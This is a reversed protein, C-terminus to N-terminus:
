LWHYGLHVLHVIEPCAIGMKLFKKTMSVNGPLKKTRFEVHKIFYNANVVKVGNDIKVQPQGCTNTMSLRDSIVLKPTGIVTMPHMPASNLQRQLKSIPSIEFIALRQLGATFLASVTPSFNPQVLDVAGINDFDDVVDVNEETGYAAFASLVPDQEFGIDQGLVDGLITKSFIWDSVPSFQSKANVGCSRLDFVLRLGTRPPPEIRRRASAPTVVPPPAPRKEPTKTPTQNTEM